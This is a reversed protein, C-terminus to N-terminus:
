GRTPTPTLRGIGRLAQDQAVGLAALSVFGIPLSLVAVARARRGTGTARRASSTSQGTGSSGVLGSPM